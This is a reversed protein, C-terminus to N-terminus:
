QCLIQHLIPTEMMLLSANRNRVMNLGTKCEIHKYEYLYELNVIDFFFFYPNARFQVPTVDVRLIYAVVIGCVRVKITAQHTGIHIILDGDRSSFLLSFFPNARFQVPTVDVRLIYAVM